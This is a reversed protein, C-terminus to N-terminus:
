MFLPLIIYVVASPQPGPPRTSFPPLSPIKSSRMMPLYWWLGRNYSPKRYEIWGRRTLFSYIYRSRSSSSVMILWLLTCYNCQKRHLYLAIRTPLLWPARVPAIRSLLGRGERSERFSWHTGGLLVVTFAQNCFCELAFKFSSDYSLRYEFEHTFLDFHYHM